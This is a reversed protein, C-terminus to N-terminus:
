FLNLQDYMSPTGRGPIFIDLQSDDAPHMKARLVKRFERDLIRREYWDLPSRVIITEDDEDSNESPMGDLDDLDRFGLDYLQAAIESLSDTPFSDPENCSNSMIDYHHGLFFYDNGAYRKRDFLEVSGGKCLSDNTSYMDYRQVYVSKPLKEEEM